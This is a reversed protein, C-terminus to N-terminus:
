APKLADADIGLVRALQDLYTEFAQHGSATLRYRSVPTRGEFRKTAAVFGADELKRLHAGLNGDTTRLEDRLYAFEANEVSALLAMIGLRLKAHILDDLGGAATPDAV